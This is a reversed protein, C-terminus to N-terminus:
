TLNSESAEEAILPAHIRDDVEEPVEPVGQPADTFQKSVEQTEDAHEEPTAGRQRSTENTPGSPTKGPSLSVSSVVACVEAKEDGGGRQRLTV